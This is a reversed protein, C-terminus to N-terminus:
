IRLDSKVYRTVYDFWDVSTEFTRIAEEPGMDGPDLEYLYSVRVHFGQALRAAAAKVKALVDAEFWLYIYRLNPFTHLLDLQDETIKAGFTYCCRLAEDEDLRLNTDTRTKSFIGETLIVTTTRDTLEDLGGLMRGFDSSSNRYRLYPPEGHLKRGRNIADIREKSKDSRGLYGVVRGRQRILFTVYDPHLPSRGVEHKVFQADTFGRSRLYPDEYVRAWLPPPGVEPLPDVEVPDAEESELPKMKEFINVKREGLLEFGRGLHKVLSYINGTAGCSRGRFCGFPHNNEVLSIGFEEVGCYPCRGYLDRGNPSLVLKGLLAELQERTLRM